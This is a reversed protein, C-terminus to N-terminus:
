TLQAALEDVLDRQAGVEPGAMPRHAAVVELAEDRGLGRGMLLCVAVTGARGIGAGCHVLLHAGAALRDDLEGLLPRLVGLSPAHLDPIPFWVARDGRHAELWAVYDPYREALEHPENLCVITGRGGIRALAAEPDPGVAHKGCLWLQGPVGPVPVQDVGGDRWRDRRVNTLGSV